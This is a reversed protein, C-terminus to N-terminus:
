LNLPFIASLLHYKAYDPALAPLINLKLVEKAEPIRSSAQWYPEFMKKPEVNERFEWKKTGKLYPYTFRFANKIGRGDASQYNWLDVNAKEAVLALRTLADLNVCTYHFSGARALERPMSGDPDIQVDIRKTKAETFLKRAAATDNVFLLGSGLTIDYSVGHNNLQVSEEKGNKSEMLWKNFQLYWSQLAKNDNDSWVGSFKLMGVCNLVNAFREADLIGYCSGWGRKPDNPVFQARDMDPNMFTEKNIFWVKIQEVAKQAYEKKNTFWWALTLNTIRNIMEARVPFDFKNQFEINFKGDVRIWPNNENTTDPWFYISSSVYDHPNAKSIRLAYESKDTVAVNRETLMKDAKKLINGVTKSVSADGNLAKKRADVLMNADWTYVKPMESQNQASLSYSILILLILLINKKM